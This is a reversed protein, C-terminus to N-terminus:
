WMCAFPIRIHVLRPAARHTRAVTRPEIRPPTDTRSHELDGVVLRPRGVPVDHEEQM